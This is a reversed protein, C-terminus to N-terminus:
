KVPASCPASELKYAINRSGFLAGCDCRKGGGALSWAFAYTENTCFPCTLTLHVRGMERYREVATYPRQQTNPNSIDNHSTRKM